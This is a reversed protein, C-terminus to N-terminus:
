ITRYMRKKFWTGPLTGDSPDIPGIEHEMENQNSSLAAMRVQNSVYAWLFSTGNDTTHDRHNDAVLHTRTYLGCGSDEVM